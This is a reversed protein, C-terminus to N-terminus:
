NKVQVEAVSDFGKKGSGEVASPGGPLCGPSSASLVGLLDLEERPTLAGVWIKEVRGEKDVLMITPTAFVNLKDLPVGPVSQFAFAEYDMFRRVAEPDNPFVAVVQLDNRGSLQANALKKYFPASVQCYHCGTNLALVLTRRNQHWVIGSIKPLHDGIAPSRPTSDIAANRGIVMYGVALAVVIVTMNAIVELKTRMAM